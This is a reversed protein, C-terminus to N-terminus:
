VYGPSQEYLGARKEVKLYELEGGFFTARMRENWTEVAGRWTFVSAARGAHFHSIGAQPV